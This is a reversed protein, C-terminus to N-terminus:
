QLSDLEKQRYELPSFGTEKKFFRSFYNQDSYGVFDAIEKIEMQAYTIKNEYTAVNMPYM